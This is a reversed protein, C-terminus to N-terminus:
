RIPSVSHGYGISSKGVVQVSGPDDSEPKGDVAAMGSGFGGSRFGDGGKSGIEASGLGREEERLQLGLKGSQIALTVLRMSSDIQAAKGDSRIADEAPTPYTREHIEDAGVGSLM